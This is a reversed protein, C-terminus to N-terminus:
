PGRWAVAYVDHEGLLGKFRQEGRPEFHFTPDSATYERLAESVLIEGGRAHDAIRAALVVNRGFFANADAILFGTHLGIRLALARGLEPLVHGSFARQMEIACRLGSHASAFSAMLGDDHAKVITGEHVGALQRVLSSHDRLMEAARREGLAEVVGHGDEIDSLLLTIAGDPSTHGGFDLKELDVAAAVAHISSPYATM